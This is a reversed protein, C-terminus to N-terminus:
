RYEGHTEKIEKLGTTTVESSNRANPVVPRSDLVVTKLDM